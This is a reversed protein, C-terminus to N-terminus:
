ANTEASSELFRCLREARNDWSKESSVITLARRAKEEYKGGADQCIDEIASAWSQANPEAYNLLREYDDPIGPLRNALTPTGSSLYELVKSPFTYKTVFSDALRPSILLSARRQAARVTDHPQLGCYEVNPMTRHAEQVYQQLPGAGYIRLLLSDDTIMRMAQIALEIGSVENLTGTFLITGSSRKPQEGGQETSRAMTESAPEPGRVGGEIVISRQGGRGFDLYIARTIAILKQFRKILQLQARADARRIPSRSRRHSDLPVDMILGTNAVSVTASAVLAPASVYTLTNAVLLELGRHTVKASIGASVVAKFVSFAISVQKLVPVNLIMFTRQTLGGQNHRKSSPVFWHKSKPWAPIIPFACIDVTRGTKSIGEALGRVFREGALSGHEPSYRSDPHAAAGIILVHEVNRM